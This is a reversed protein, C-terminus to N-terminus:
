IWGTENSGGMGGIPKDGPVTPTSPESPTDPETPTDPTGQQGFYRYLFTVTQGRTCNNRPAFSNNGMGNTIEQQVAWNAATAYYADGPVDSFGSAKQCDPEGALRWLFTVFHERQVTVEPGFTTATMGNTIGKEVAWLVATYYYQSQDLDTFPNDTKTPAPEGSARWLFTVAQARTCSHGPGFTTATMGNTVGKEVAWLIPTYFYESSPVDTFPNEAATAVMGVSLIMVTAVLMATYRLTIHKKNM